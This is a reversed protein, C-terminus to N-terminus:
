QRISTFNGIVSIGLVAAGLPKVHFATNIGLGGYILHALGIGTVWLTIISGLGIYGLLAFARGVFPPPIERGARLRVACGHQWGDGRWRLSHLFLPSDELRSGHPGGENEQDCDRAIRFQQGLGLM